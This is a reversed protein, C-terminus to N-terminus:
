ILGTGKKKCACTTKLHKYGAKNLFFINRNAEKFCVLDLFQEWLRMMIETGSERDTMPRNEGTEV